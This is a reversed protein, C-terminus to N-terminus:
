PRQGDLSQVQKVSSLLKRGMTPADYFKFVASIRELYVHPTKFYDTSVHHLTRLPLTKYLCDTSYFIHEKDPHYGYGDRLEYTKGRHIMPM